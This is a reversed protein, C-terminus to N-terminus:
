ACIADTTARLNIADSRSARIDAVNHKAYLMCAADVITPVPQYRACLWASVDLRGAAKSAQRSLDRLLAPLTQPTADLPPTVGRGLILPLDMLTQPAQEAVLIPIIPNERSGAHFDHLDIAYDEVQRRDAVSYVTRGAKIELVFIASEALLIVDPRRGLRLMPYELLVHWGAADPLVELASRLMAITTDWARLQQVENLRFHRIQAVALVGTIAAAPANLFEDATGSWFSNM